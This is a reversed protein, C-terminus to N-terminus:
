KNGPSSPLPCIITRHQFSRVEIPFVFNVSLCVSSVANTASVTKWRFISAQIRLKKRARGFLCLKFFRLFCYLRTCHISLSHRLQVMNSLLHNWPEGACSAIPQHQPSRHTLIYATELSLFIPMVTASNWHHFLCRFWGHRDYPNVGADIFTLLAELKWAWPADEGRM